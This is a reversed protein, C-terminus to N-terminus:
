ISFSLLFSVNLLFYTSRRRDRERAFAVRTFLQGIGILDQVTGLLRIIEQYVSHSVFISLQSFNLLGDRVQLFLQLLIFLTQLSEIEIQNKGSFTFLFSLGQRFGIM